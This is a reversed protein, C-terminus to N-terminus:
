RVPVDDCMLLTQGLDPHRARQRGLHPQHPPGRGRRLQPHRPRALVRRVDPYDPRRPNYSYMHWRHSASVTIIFPTNNLESAPLLITMFNCKSSITNNHIM